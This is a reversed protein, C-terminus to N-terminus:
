LQVDKGPAYDHKGVLDFAFPYFVSCRLMCHFRRTRPTVSPFDKLICSSIMLAQHDTIITIEM